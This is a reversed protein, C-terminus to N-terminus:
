KYLLDFQLCLQWQVLLSRNGYANDGIEVHLPFLIFGLRMTAYVVLFAGLNTYYWSLLIVILIKNEYQSSLTLQTGLEGIFQGM